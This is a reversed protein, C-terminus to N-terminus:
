KCITWSIGSCGLVGNDRAENLNLNSKGKQYRSVWTTKSFLGNFPHLLLKAEKNQGSEMFIKNTLSVNHCAIKWTHKFAPLLWNLRRCQVLLWFFHCSDLTQPTLKSIPLSVVVPLIQSFHLNQTPFLNSVNNVTSFKHSSYKIIHMHIHIHLSCWAPQKCHLHLQTAKAQCRCLDTCNLFLYCVKLYTLMQCAGITEQWCDYSQFFRTHIYFTHAKPTKISNTPCCSPCGAQLFCLSSTSAHNDTQLSTCVQMHGLQHWQWESDRAETFDLNTKVKQYRNVQTTGWFPGNFPHTHIYLTM